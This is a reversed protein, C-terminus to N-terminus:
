GLSALRCGGVVGNDLDRDVGVDDPEGCAAEPRGAGAVAGRHSVGALPAVGFHRVDAPLGAGCGGLARGTLSLCGLDAQRQRLDSPVPCQRRAPGTAPRPAVVPLDLVGAGAPPPLPSRQRGAPM